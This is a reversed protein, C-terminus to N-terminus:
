ETSSPPPSADSPETSRRPMPAPDPLTFSGGPDRGAPRRLIARLTALADREVPPDGFPGVRIEMHIAGTDDAPWRRWRAERGDPLRLTARGTDREPDPDVEVLGWHTENALRRFDIPLRTPDFDWTARTPEAVPSTKPDTPDTADTAACGVVALALLGITILRTISRLRLRQTPSSLATLATWSV